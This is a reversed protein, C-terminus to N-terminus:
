QVLNLPRQLFLSGKHYVSVSTQCLLVRDLEGLYDLQLGSRGTSRQSLVLVVLLVGKAMMSAQVPQLM